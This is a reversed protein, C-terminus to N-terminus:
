FNGFNSGCIGLGYADLKADAATGLVSEEQDAALVRSGDGAAAADRIEAEKALAKDQAALMDTM